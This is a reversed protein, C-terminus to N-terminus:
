PVVQLVRDTSNNIQQRVNPPAIPCGTSADNAADNGHIRLLDRLTNNGPLPTLNMTNPGTTDSYHGPGINYGGQPTPGVDRIDQMAPNNRGEGTGSYGQGVPTVAGTQDNVYSWQGTSQLFQWHLGFPDILRGLRWGYEVGVPFVESAGASKAAPQQAIGRDSFGPLGFLLVIAIFGPKM